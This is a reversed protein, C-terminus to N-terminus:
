RNGMTWMDSVGCVDCCPMPEYKSRYRGYVVNGCETCIYKTPACRSYNELTVGAADLASQYEKGALAGSIHPINAASEYEKETGFLADIVEM